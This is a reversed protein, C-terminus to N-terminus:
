EILKCFRHVLPHAYYRVSRLILVVRVVLLSCWCILKSQIRLGLCCSIPTLEYSGLLVYVSSVSQFIPYTIGLVMPLVRPRTLFLPFTSGLPFLDCPDTKLAVVNSAVTVAVDLYEYNYGVTHFHLHRHCPNATTLDLRCCGLSRRYYQFNEYRSCCCQFHHEHFPM